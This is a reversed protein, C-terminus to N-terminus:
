RVFVAGTSTRLAYILENLPLHVSKDRIGVAVLFDNIAVLSVIASKRGIDPASRDFITAAFQLRSFLQLASEMPIM